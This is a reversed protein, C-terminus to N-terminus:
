FVLNKKRIGENFDHMPDNPLSTVAHFGILNALPSTHVVGQLIVDNDLNIVQKVINDHQDAMRRPHSIQNLPILKQNYNIHCHRCFQGTSFSKQFGGIDNSALHDGALVTFAFHLHKRLTPIFVGATQLANLDEVIPDFFKKKNLKDSLYNSHCMAILGISNLMSKVTDPLDELQFYIMTIKQTDKKAGIPNTLGIEDIYLQFLLADPKNKLVPHQKAHLAHRYNFMLDTDIADRNVNENFNKILMTLVDPKNLMQQISSQIPIYYAMQDPNELKIEKASAYSFYKKCLKLFSHENKTIDTMREIINSIVENVDTLLICDNADSNTVPKQYKISSNKTQIKLLEHILEILCKLGSTITQIINQPLSHGERLNLLFDVYFKEFFDLDIKKGSSRTIKEMLLPWHIVDEDTEREIENREDEVDHIEIDFDLQTDYSTSLLTEDDHANTDTQIGQKCLDKDLLDTHERYIHAKYGAFTSYIRGCLPGLECRIKFESQGNHVYQLHRFLERYEWYPRSEICLSCFYYNHSSM